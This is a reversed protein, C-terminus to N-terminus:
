FALAKKITVRGKKSVWDLMVSYPWALLLCAMLIYLRKSFLIRSVGNPVVLIRKNFGEIKFKLALSYNMDKSQDNERALKLEDVIASRTDSDTFVVKHKFELRMVKCKQLEESLPITRDQVSTFNLPSTNRESVVLKSASMPSFPSRPVPEPTIEKNSFFLWYRKKTQWHFCKSVIEFKPTSNKIIIFIDELQSATRVHSLHKMTKGYFAYKIYFGTCTVLALLTKKFGKLLSWRIETISKLLDPSHVCLYVFHLVLFIPILLIPLFLRKKAPRLIPLDVPKPRPAEFDGGDAHDVDESKFIPQAILKM